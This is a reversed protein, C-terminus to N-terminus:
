TRPRRKRASRTSEGAVTAAWADCNPTRPSPTGPRGSDVRAAPEEPANAMNSASDPSLGAVMPPRGAMVAVKLAM